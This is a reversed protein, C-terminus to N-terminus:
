MELSPFSAFGTFPMDKKIADNMGVMMSAVPKIKLFHAGLDM